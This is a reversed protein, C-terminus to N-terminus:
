EISAMVQQRGRQVGADAPEGFGIRRRLHRRDDPHKWPGVPELAFSVMKIPHDKDAMRVHPPQQGVVTKLAVRQALIERKGAEDLHAVVILLLPHKVFGDTEVLFKAVEIEERWPFARVIRHQGPVLLSAAFLPHAFPSYPHSNFSGDILEYRSRLTHCSAM